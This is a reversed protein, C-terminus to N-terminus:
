TRTDNQRHKKGRLTPRELTENQTEYRDCQQEEQHKIAKPADPRLAAPSALRPYLVARMDLM